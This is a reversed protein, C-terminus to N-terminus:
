KVYKTSGIPCIIEDTQHGGRGTTPNPLVGASILFHRRKLKEFLTIEIVTLGDPKSCYLIGIM